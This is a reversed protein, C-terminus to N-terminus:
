LPRADSNPPITLKTSWRRDLKDRETREGKEALNIVRKPSRYTTAFNELDLTQLLTGSSHVRIKSPVQIEKCCLTPYTSFLEWALILEIQEVTEISCRSTVSVSVSPRLAM